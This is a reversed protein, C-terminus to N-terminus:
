PVQISTRANLLRDGVSLASHTNSNLTASLEVTGSPLAGIHTWRSYVRALKKGNVYIHAHGEGAIDTTNVNQPTFIFNTTILEVNWGSVADPHLVLKLTPANTGQPLVSVKSHDHAHDMKAVIEVVNHDHDHGDLTVGNAAAILFGAGTGFFLGIFLLALPKQM